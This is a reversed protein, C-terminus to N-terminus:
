LHIGMMDSKIKSQAWSIKMEAAKRLSQLETYKIMAETHDDVSQQYEASSRAQSKKFEQTGKDELLFAKAEAIKILYETEAVRGKWYAYEEASDRLYDLAKEIQQETINM